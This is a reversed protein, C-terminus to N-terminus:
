KSRQEIVRGPSILSIGQQFATSIMVAEVVPETVGKQATWEVIFNAGSGGRTDQEEVFFEATAMRPIQLSKKSYEKVLNGKSDYYRVSTVIISDTLSTNRISLTIALLYEKGKGYYIHSYAPVYITQGTATELNKSSTDVETNFSSPSLQTLPEVQSPQPQQPTKESQQTTCACLLGTVLTLCILQLLTKRALM